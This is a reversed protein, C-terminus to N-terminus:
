RVFMLQNPNWRWLNSADIHTGGIWRDIEVFNTKFARGQLVSKGASTIEVIGSQNLVLPEAGEGLGSLYMMFSSDGMFVADECEQAERFLEGLRMSKKDLTMLIQSETRSLGTQYHPYEEALRRLSTYLHPLAPERKGFEAELAEPSESTFAHWSNMAAAICAATVEQRDEFSQKLEDASCYAIFDPPYVQTMYLPLPLESSFLSLIQILQLQDYLDHEFCLVLEDYSSVSRLRDDREVLAKHVEEFEGWGLSAIYRARLESLVQLKYGGPVPGDHLVDDWSFIDGELGARKISDIGSQGNTVILRSVARKQNLTQELM